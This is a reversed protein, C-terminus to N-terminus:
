PRGWTLASVYIVNTVYTIDIYIALNTAFECSVRNWIDFLLNSPFFDYVKSDLWIAGSIYSRWGWGQGGHVLDPRLFFKTKLRELQQFCNQWHFKPSVTNFRNWSVGRINVHGKLLSWKLLVNWRGVLKWRIDQNEPYVTISEFNGFSERSTVIRAVQGGGMWKGKQKEPLFPNCRTLPIKWFFIDVKGFNWNTFTLSAMGMAETTPFSSSITTKPFADWVLKVM